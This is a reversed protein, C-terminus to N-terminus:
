RQLGSFFSFGLYSLKLTSRVLHAKPKPGRLYKKKKKQHAVLSFQTRPGLKISGTGDRGCVRGGYRETGEQVM